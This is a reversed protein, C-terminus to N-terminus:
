SCVVDCPVHAYYRLQGSVMILPLNYINDNYSIINHLWRLGGYCMLRHVREGEGECIGLHKSVYVCKTGWFKKM